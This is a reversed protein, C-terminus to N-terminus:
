LTLGLFSALLRFHHYNFRGARGLAFSSSCPRPGSWPSLCSSCKYFFCFVILIPNMTIKSVFKRPERSLNARMAAIPHRCSASGKTAPPLQLASPFVCCSPWPPWRHPGRKRQWRPGAKRQWRSLLKDGAASGSDALFYSTEPLKEATLSFTAQGRCIKELTAFM